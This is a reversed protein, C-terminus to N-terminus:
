HSTVLKTVWDKPLQVRRLPRYCAAGLLRDLCVECRWLPRRGFVGRYYLVPVRFILWPEVRFRAMARRITSASLGTREAAVDRGWGNYLCRLVLTDRQMPLIRRRTQKNSGPARKGAQHEQVLGHATEAPQAFSPM